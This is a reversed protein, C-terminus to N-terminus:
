RVIRPETGLLDPSSGFAKPLSSRVGHVEEGKLAQQSLPRPETVEAGWRAYMCLSELAPRPHTVESPVYGGRRKM